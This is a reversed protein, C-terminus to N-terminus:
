RARETGYLLVQQRLTLNFGFREVAPALKRARDLLTTADVGEPMVWVASTPIGFEAVLTVVREVDLWDGAVFKFSAKGEVALQAFRSLAVPKIRKPEPDRTSLKPSVIFHEVAAAVPGTPVLTGNTEVHFRLPLELVEEFAEKRQHMLPEGGSLVVLSNVPVTGLRRRIEDVEVEPCEADVDFRSRDWTFATDCWECTLNCLGLRIFYCVRGTHPGEGQWVPGFVESVPLTDTSPM